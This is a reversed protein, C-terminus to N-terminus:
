VAFGADNSVRGLGGSKVRRGEEVAVGPKNSKLLM